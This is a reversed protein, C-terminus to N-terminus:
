NLMLENLQHQENHPRARASPELRVETTHTEEKPGFVHQTCTHAMYRVPMRSLSYGLRRGKTPQFLSWAPSGQAPSASILCTSPSIIVEEDFMMNLFLQERTSIDVSIHPLHWLEQKCRTSCLCSCIFKQSLMDM